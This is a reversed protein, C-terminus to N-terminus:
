KLTYGVSIGFWHQWQFDVLYSILPTYGLRYFINKSPHTFRYGLMLNGLMFANGKTTITLGQGIGLDLAHPSSGVIAILHLPFILSIGNNRDIPALSFGARFGISTNKKHLLTKELNFSGLGGSGGLEFYLARTTNQSHGNQFILLSFLVITLLYSIRNYVM